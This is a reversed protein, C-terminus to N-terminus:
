NRDHVQINQANISRQACKLYDYLIEHCMVNRKICRGTRLGEDSQYISMCMHLYSM